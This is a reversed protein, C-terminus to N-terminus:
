KMSEAIQILDAKTLKNGGYVLEIFLTNTRWRLTKLFPESLWVPGNDTLEWVGEIYEGQFSGIEIEEVPASDGVVGQLPYIDEDSGLQQENIVFGESVSFEDFSRAYFLSVMNNKSEFTAGRFQFGEIVERDPLVLKYGALNAAEEVSFPYPNTNVESPSLTMNEALEIMGAMDLYEIAEVNGFKTMEIWIGNMVWRLRLIAAHPNWTATTENPYVVFTGQVFEGDLDDIKVPIIADAPVKDWDSQLYGDQSQMIILNGGSGNAEYELSIAKGYPRAGLFTLGKPTSSLEAINFGIFQEADSIVTILPMPPLATPNDETVNDLPAVQWPQLPMSDSEARTFFQLVSQALAQGQPTALSIVILAMVTLVSIALRKMPYKNMKEGQQTSYKKGAVLHSKVAPLLDVQASPIEKELADQLSSKINKSDM